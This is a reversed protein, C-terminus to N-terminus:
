GFSGMLTGVVLRWGDALQAEDFTDRERDTPDPAGDQMRVRCKGCTGQGGCPTDLTLGARAAAELVKTGPLVFVAQGHPEFTVRLQQNQM